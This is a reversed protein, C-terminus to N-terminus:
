EAQTARTTGKVKVTVGALAGEDGTVVGTISKQQAQLAPPTLLLILLCSVLLRLYNRM